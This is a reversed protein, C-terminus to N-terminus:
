RPLSSLTRLGAPPGGSLVGPPPGFYARSASATGDSPAPKVGFGNSSRLPFATGRSNSATRLTGGKLASRQTQGDTRRMPAAGSRNASSWVAGRGASATSTAAPPVNRASLQGRTRAQVGRKSVNSVCSPSADGSATVRYARLTTLRGRSVTRGPLRRHSGHRTVDNARLVFAGTPGPRPAAGRAGSHRCRWGPPRTWRSLWVAAHSCTSAGTLTDFCGRRAPFYRRASPNAQSTLSKLWATTRQRSGELRSLQPPPCRIRRGRAAMRAGTDMTTGSRLRLRRRLGNRAVSFVPSSDMALRANHRARVRARGLTQACCGGASPGQGPVRRQTRRRRTRGVAVPIPPSAPLRRDVARRSAQEGSGLSSMNRCRSVAASARERHPCAGISGAARPQVCQRTGCATCWRRGRQASTRPWPPWCVPSVRARIRSLRRLSAPSGALALGFM